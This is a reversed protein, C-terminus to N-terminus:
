IIKAAEPRNEALANKAILFVGHKLPWAYEIQFGVNEIANELSSRTFANLPPTLGLLNGLPLIGRVVPNVEAICATNSVFVGGPKLWRKVDTIRAELDTVLHLISHALIVDYHGEAITFDEVSSQLFRVNGVNSETAREAAITLMASSIDVADIESVDPSLKIATSGTGCGIELVSMDPRLRERTLELKRKYADVDSIPKAAYRKAIKDWFHAPDRM